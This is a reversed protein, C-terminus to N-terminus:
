QNGENHGKQLYNKPKINPLEKWNEFGCLKRLKREANHIRKNITSPKTDLLKGMELTSMEPGDFGYRLRIIQREYDSLQDMAARLMRLQEEKEPNEDEEIVIRAKPDEILDGRLGDNDEGENIEQDLYLAPKGIMELKQITEPDKVIAKQDKNTGQRVDYLRQIEHFYVDALCISYANRARDKSLSNGIIKKCFVGFGVPGPKYKLASECLAEMAVQMYDDLENVRSTRTKYDMAWAIAMNINGEVLEQYAEYGKQLEEPDDSNLGYQIIEALHQEEERSLRPKLDGYRKGM